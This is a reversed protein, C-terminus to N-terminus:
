FYRWLAGLTDEFKGWHGLFNRHDMLVMTGGHGRRGVGVLVVRQGEVGRLQTHRGGTVCVNAHALAAANTIINM